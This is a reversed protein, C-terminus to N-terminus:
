QLLTCPMFLCKEAVFRDLAGEYSVVYILSDGDVTLNASEFKASLEKARRKQVNHM